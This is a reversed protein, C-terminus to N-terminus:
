FISFLLFLQPYLLARLLVCIMPMHLQNAEDLHLLYFHNLDKKKWLLLKSKKHYLKSQKAGM